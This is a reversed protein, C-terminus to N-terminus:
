FFDEVKVSVFVCEDYLNITKPLFSMRHLVFLSSFLLSLSYKNIELLLECIEFIKCLDSILDVTIRIKLRTELVIVKFFVLFLLFNGV